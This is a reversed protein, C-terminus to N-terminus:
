QDVEDEGPERPKAPETTVEGTETDIRETGGDTLLSITSGASANVVPMAELEHEMPMGLMVEPCYLRVLMSAARYSLMQQPMSQYKKGGSGWGELKAMEMTATASVESGTKAMKAFATVAMKDGTGVTRFQIPDAFTGSRNARAILFTAKWGPTGHIIVINQMVMLPDEQMREAMMLAVFCNQPKGRLDKPVLDSQSFAVAMRYKPGFPDDPRIADKAVTASTAKQIAADNAMVGGEKGV